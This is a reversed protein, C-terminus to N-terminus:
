EFAGIFLGQCVAGCSGVLDRHNQCNTSISKHRKELEDGNSLVAKEPAGKTDM